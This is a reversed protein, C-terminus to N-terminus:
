MGLSDMARGYRRGYEQWWPIFERYDHKRKTNGKARSKHYNVAAERVVVVVTADEPVTLWLTATSSLNSAKCIHDFWEKRSLRKRRFIRWVVRFGSDEFYPTGLFGQYEGELLHTGVAYYMDYPADSQLISIFRKYTESYEGAQGGSLFKHAARADKHFVIHTM